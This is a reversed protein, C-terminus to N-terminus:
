KLNNYISRINLSKNKYIDPTKYHKGRNRNYNHMFNNSRQSYNNGYIYNNNLPQELNSVTQFKNNNYGNNYRNVSYDYYPNTIDNYKNEIDKFMCQYKNLKDVLENLKSELDNQEDFARKYNQNTIELKDKLEDNLEKLEEITKDKENTQKELMNYKNRINSIEDRFKDCNLLKNKLDIIEKSKADKEDMLISNQNKEKKYEINLIDLENQLHDIEYLNKNKITNLQHQLNNNEMELSKIQSKLNNNKSNLEELNELSKQCKNKKENTKNIINKFKEESIKSLTQYESITKNKNKLIENLKNLELNLRTITNITEDYNKLRNRLYNIDYKQSKIKEKLMDICINNNIFNNYQKSNM